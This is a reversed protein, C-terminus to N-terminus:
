FDAQIEAELQKIKANMRMLVFSLCDSILVPNSIKFIPESNSYRNYNSFVLTHKPEDFDGKETLEKSVTLAQNLNESHTKFDNLQSIKRKKQEYFNIVEEINAPKRLREKELEELRNLLEDYSPKTTTKDATKAKAPTQPQEQKKMEMKPAGQGNSKKDTM